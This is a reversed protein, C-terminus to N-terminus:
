AAEKAEGAAPAAPKAPPEHVVVTINSSPKIIRGARGKSKAKFRKMVKEPGVFAEKVFLKDVDLGHNNEANAIASQLVKKVDRAIRKPSFQLIHVAQEAKKGRILQAVLNLKQWSTRIRIGKAMAENDALRREAKPKGM